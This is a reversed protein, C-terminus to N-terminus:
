IPMKFFQHFDKLGLFKLSLLMLIIILNKLIQFYNEIKPNISLEASSNLGTKFPFLSTFISAWSLLTGDACSFNNEFYTGKKILNDINPTFCTKESNNFSSAKLSDIIIFLINPKM